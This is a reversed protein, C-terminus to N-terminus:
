EKDDEFRVRISNAHATLYESEAFKIIHTSPKGSKLFQTAPPTFKDLEGKTMPKPPLIPNVKNQLEEMKQTLDEVCKIALDKDFWFGLTERRIALDALKHEMKIAKDWGKYEGKEKMLAFFTNKGVETDLICYTTMLPTYNKFEFGKPSDKPIIGRKILEGRFDMKSAGTREGWSSLSHGNFRDPNFLRSLILTDVIKVEEGFLTDPEDLYGINYDLVGFLKLSILDFKVGNHQVLYKCGKLAEKMWEKTIKDGEAVFLEDTYADRIVVVHLKADPKLKYPFSSHDVMEELLSSTEIDIVKVLGKNEEM